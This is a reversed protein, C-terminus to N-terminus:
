SFQAYLRMDHFYVKSDILNKDSSLVSVDVEKNWWLALGGSIGRPNVYVYGSFNLRKRIKELKEKKNKTEMLFVM